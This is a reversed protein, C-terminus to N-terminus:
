RRRRALAVVGLGVLGLSAPEPVLTLHKSFLYSEVQEQELASLVRNYILIEAIQGNFKTGTTLDISAPNNFIIDMGIRTRQHGTFTSEASVDAEATSRANAQDILIALLNNGTTVSSDYVLGGIYFDDGPPVTNDATNAATFGNTASRVMARYNNASATGHMPAWAQGSYQTGVDPNIDNYANSILRGNGNTDPSYVIYATIATADFTATAAIDLYDDAGDFDLADTGGLTAAAVVTPRNGAAGQAAHNNLGSQDNLSAVAGSDLTVDSGDASFILGSTVPPLSSASVHAAFVAALATTGLQLSANRLTM